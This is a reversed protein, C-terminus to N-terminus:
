GFFVKVISPCTEASFPSGNSCTAIMSFPVFMPTRVSEAPFNERFIGGKFEPCSVLKVKWYIPHKLWSIAMEDALWCSSIVIYGSIVIPSIMIMFFGLKILRSVLGNRHTPFPNRLRFCQNFFIMGEATGM